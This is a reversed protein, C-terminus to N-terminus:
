EKGLILAKKFLHTVNKHTVYLITKENFFELLDKLIDVELKYDVEKLVEDLLIINKSHVLSRALIIRNKEGGSITSNNLIPYNLGFEKVSKIKDVRCINIIKNLYNEDINKGLTINNLITDDFLADNQSTFSILEEIDIQKLNIDDVRILGDYNNIEKFIIKLLTSKGIGSPGNILIKDESKISFNINNLIVNNNITYSLSTLEIKKFNYLVKNGKKLNISLFENNKNIFSKLIFITPLYDIIKKIENTLYNTLIFMTLCKTLTVNNKLFLYLLILLMLNIIFDNIFTIKLINQNINKDIKIKNSLNDKINNKFFNFNKIHLLTEINSIYDIIKSNYSEEQNIFFRFKNTLKKYVFYNLIFFLLLTLVIIIAIKFNLILLLSAIFIILIIEYIIDFILYITEKSISGMENFRTVIEGKQKLKIYYSPLKFLYSIFDIIINFHSTQVLNLIINGKVYNLLGYLFLIFLLIYFFNYNNNLISIESSIILTFILLICNIIFLLLCKKKSYKINDKIKTSIINSSKYNPLELIPILHIIVGTFLKYFEEKKIKKIGVSPDMLIFYDKIDKYIVVFHFLNNKLKLHAIIPNGDFNIEKVKEGYSNFGLKKACNIIEYANTGNSDTKTDLRLNELSINGKYYKIISALCCIGCDSIEEQIVKYIKTM